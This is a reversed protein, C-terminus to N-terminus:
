AQLASAAAASATKAPVPLPAEIGGTIRLPPRREELLSLRGFGFSVLAVLVLILPFYVPPSELRDRCARMFIKIKFRMEPLRM